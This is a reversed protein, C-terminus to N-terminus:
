CVDRSEAQHGAEGLQDVGTGPSTGAQIAAGRLPCHPRFSKLSLGDLKALQDSGTNKCCFTQAATIISRM